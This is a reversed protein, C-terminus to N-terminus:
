GGKERPSFPPVRGDSEFRERSSGGLSAVGPEGKERRSFPTLPNLSDERARCGEPQATARGSCRESLQLDQVEIRHREVAGGDDVEDDGGTAGRACPEGRSVAGAVGLCWGTAGRTRPGRVPVLREKYGAPLTATEEGVGQAYYGFTEHFPSLEGISGDILDARDPHHMPYVDAEVSVLLEEPADPFQGLIAQSGIVVIDDDEAITAAAGIVHELQRRNV